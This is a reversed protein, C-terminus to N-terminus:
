MPRLASSKNVLQKDLGLTGSSACMVLEQQRFTQHRRFIDPSYNLKALVSLSPSIMELERRGRPLM